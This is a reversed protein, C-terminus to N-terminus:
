CKRYFSNETVSFSKLCNSVPEPPSPSPSPFLRILSDTVDNQLNDVVEIESDSDTDRNKEENPEAEMSELDRVETVPAPKKLFWSHIFSQGQDALQRHKMAHYRKTRVSNGTYHRKRKPREEAAEREAKVALTQAELLIQGFHHIEEENRLEELEDELEGEELDIDMDNDSDSDSYEDLIFFGGCGSSADTLDQDQDDEVSASLTKNLNPLNNIRAQQAKTKRGM